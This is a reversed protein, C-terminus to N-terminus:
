AITMAQMRTIITAAQPFQGAQPLLQQMALHTYSQDLVAWIIGSGNVEKILPYM